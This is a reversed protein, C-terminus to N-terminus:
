IEEGVTLVKAEEAKPVNPQETRNIFAVDLEKPLPSDGTIPKYCCPSRDSRRKKPCKSKKKKKKKPRKKCTSRKKTRKKKGCKLDM